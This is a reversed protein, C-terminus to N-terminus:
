GRRVLLNPRMRAVVLLLTPLLLILIIDVASEGLQTSRGPWGRVHMDNLENVLALGLLALWPRFSRLSSRLVFVCLLILLVGSILHLADNSFGANREIATKAAFVQSGFRSLLDAGQDVIRM